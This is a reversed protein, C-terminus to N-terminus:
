AAEQKGAANDELNRRWEAAAERSILVRSGIRMEKPAKGVTKLNYYSARCIGHKVCFQNISYADLEDLSM